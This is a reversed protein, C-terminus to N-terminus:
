HKITETEESIKHVVWPWIGASLIVWWEGLLLDIPCEFSMANRHQRTASAPNASIPHLSSSVVFGGVVVGGPANVAVGAETEVFAPVVALTMM